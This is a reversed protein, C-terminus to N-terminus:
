GGEGGGERAIALLLPRELLHLFACATDQECRLADRPSRAFCRLM